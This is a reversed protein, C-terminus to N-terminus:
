SDRDNVSKNPNILANEAGSGNSFRYCSASLWSASDFVHAM